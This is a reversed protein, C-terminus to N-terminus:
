NSCPRQHWLPWLHRRWARLSTTSGRTNTSRATNLAVTASRANKHGLSSRGPPRCLLGVFCFQVDPARRM